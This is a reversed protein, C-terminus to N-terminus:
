KASKELSALYLINAATSHMVFGATGETIHVQQVGQGHGSLKNRATPVNELVSRLGGLSSEMYSPFLGNKECIGLLTKATDTQNYQWGHKHCILKMTSEFAKLCENIAEGFRGHRFHEHAKMFEQNAGALYPEHLVTMAPIVVEQHVFGSDIRVIQGDQFRYGVAHEALRENLETAGQRISDFWNIPGSANAQFYRIYYDFVIEIFDLCKETDNQQLFYNFLELESTANDKSLQFVGNEKRLLHVLDDFLSDGRFLMAISCNTVIERLILVIKVKLPEPLDYILVDTKEQQQNRRSFPKFMNNYHNIANM